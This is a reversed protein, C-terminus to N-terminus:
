RQVVMIIAMEFLLSVKIFVGVKKDPFHYFWTKLRPLINDSRKLM